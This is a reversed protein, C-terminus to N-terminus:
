TTRALHTTIATALRDPAGDAYGIFLSPETLELEVLVPEGDPGPILDVRAYLLQRTGGPVTALTQEAVALQEPRATRPTIEEAKYLGDTGLDPGSLMPGKRIAHSFALGDPGALFLLATEGETDVARLYPQVMTVRGAESLRRVHAAALDRHEPDALDYRGTDQSGASAAPKLVYEGTEAPLQWSEGPEIWSTPVTPVGAASLEALYRKDTNWRVVDAPNALRPVTAAWSVFEDRRLAYDWPSRLVVLDYSSWDVDPDDWVVSEVAVGRAALPALVLRDDPDLDALDSCTVLAVRPEGRTSQHYTTM